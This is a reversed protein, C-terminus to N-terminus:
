PDLNPWNNEAKLKDIIDRLTEHNFHPYQLSYGAVNKIKGNAFAVYHKRLQYIDMYATFYPTVVPPKSLDCMKRWTSVHSENIDEVVDELRFRAMTNIVLNHFDFTTGFFSALTNSTDVLTMQSDDAINFVPAIVKVNHPVMGEIEDAKSKDNKFVLEEGAIADAETRGGVSAMWQACAWMAGAVDEVHVTHVPHKGPSWLGKMPQKLYGYVAAVCAFSIIPGYDVYPGYVYATRLVVLNLDRISGLMRLTEHWWIGLVGDPKIDEKEDHSGKEKCEYFPHQIRVYAAVKRKAAARGISRAVGFTNNIQVKEPRDWQIEGTLDFVYTYPDQGQPPEFCSEVTAPVTLNAQRYEVNPKALIKPFESGIYTTPPAVSYKDVIRLNEVLPKGDVPVLHAALARSCTNLGGFIIANPKKAM